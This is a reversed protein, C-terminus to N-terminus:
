KKGLMILIKYNKTNKNIFRPVGSALLKDPHIEKSM